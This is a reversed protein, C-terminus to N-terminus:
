INQHIKKPQTPKTTNNFSPFSFLFPMGINKSSTSQLNLLWNESMLDKLSLLNEMEKIQSPLFVFFLSCIRLDSRVREMLFYYFNNYHFLRENEWGLEGNMGKKKKEKERIFIRGNGQKCSFCFKLVRGMQGM